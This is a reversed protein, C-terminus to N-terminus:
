KLLGKFERRGGGRGQVMGGQEGKCGVRGWAGGLFFVFFMFFFGISTTQADRLHSIHFFLCREM